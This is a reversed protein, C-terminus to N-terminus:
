VVACHIAQDTNGCSTDNWREPERIAIRTVPLLTSV